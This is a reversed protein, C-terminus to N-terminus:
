RFEWVAPFKSYSKTDAIVPLMTKTIRRHRKATPLWHPKSHPAWPLANEAAIWREHDRLGYLDQVAPDIDSDESIITAIDFVGKQGLRLIDLCIRSDVGKQRARGSQDYRLPLAIIEVGDAQYGYLRRAMAAHKEPEKNPDHIGTYFRVSHLVHSNRRSERHLDEEILAQALKRPHIWEHGLRQQSKHYLNQADM